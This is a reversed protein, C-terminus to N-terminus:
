KFIWNKCRLFSLCSSKHRNFWLNRAKQPTFGGFCSVVRHNLRCCLAEELLLVLLSVVCYGSSLM